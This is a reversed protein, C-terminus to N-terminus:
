LLLIISKVNSPSDDLHSLATNRKDYVKDPIFFAHVENVELNERLIDSSLYSVDENLTEELSCL